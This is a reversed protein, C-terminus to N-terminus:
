DIEIGLERLKAALRKARQEAAEAKQNLEITSLFERGDPRFIHLDGDRIEFRIKLRPSVWGNM